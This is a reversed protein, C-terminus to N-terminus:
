AVLEGGLYDTLEKYEDATPLHYGSPCLVRNDNVVDWKYLFGYIEDFSEGYINNYIFYDTEDGNRYHAVKLNEAMWVQDGIQVTDYVNGDIDTVTGGFSFALLSLIYVLKQIVGGFIYFQLFKCKNYAINKIM